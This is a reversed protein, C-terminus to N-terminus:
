CSGFTENKFIYWNKNCIIADIFKIYSFESLYCDKTISITANLDTVNNMITQINKIDKMTM